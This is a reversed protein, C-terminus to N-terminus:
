AFRIIVIISHFHLFEIGDILRVELKINKTILELDRRVSEPLDTNSELSEALMLAPTLPTRLEHSLMALFHDKAKNAQESREAAEKRVRNLEVQTKVRAQLERATFPKTLYDDAGSNIGEVRAEEGKFQQYNSQILHIGARASLFIVPITKTRPDSRLKELLGFRDLHNVNNRITIQEGM